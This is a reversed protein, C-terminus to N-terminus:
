QSLTVTHPAASNSGSVAKTHCGSVATSLQVLCLSGTPYALLGNPCDGAYLQWQAGVATQMTSLLLLCPISVPQLTHIATLAKQLAAQKPHDELRGAEVEKYAAELAAAM